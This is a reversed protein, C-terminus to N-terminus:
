KLHQKLQDILSKEFSPRYADRELIQGSPDIVLYRPIAFSKGNNLESQMSELLQKNVMYHDGELSYFRIIKACDEIKTPDDISIYIRQIGSEQFFQNLESSQNEFEEKCPGCWSAWIDLYLLKNPYKKTLENLDAFEESEFVSPLSTNLDQFKVIEAFEVELEPLFPSDPYDSRFRIFQDQVSASFKNKIGNSKITYALHQEKVKGTFYTSVLEYVLSDKKDPDCNRITTLADEFYMPWTANKYENYRYSGLATSNDIETNTFVNELQENWQRVISIDTEEDLTLNNVNWAIFFLQAHYYRIDERLISLFQKKLAHKKEYALIIELEEKEMIQLTDFLAVADKGHMLSQLFKSDGWYDVTYRKLASLLENEAVHDGKFMLSEFERNKELTIDIQDGPQAFFQICNSRGIWPLYNLWIQCFGASDLSLTVDLKGKNDTKLKAWKGVFFSGSIPTSINVSASFGNILNLKIHISDQNTKDGATSHQAILIVPCLLLLIFFPKM